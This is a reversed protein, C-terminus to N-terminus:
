EDDFGCFLEPFADKIPKALLEELQEIRRNRREIMTWLRTKLRRKKELLELDLTHTRALAALFGCLILSVFYVVLM